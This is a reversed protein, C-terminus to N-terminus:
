YWDWKIYSYPLFEDSNVEAVIEGPLMTNDTKLYLAGLVKVIEIEGWPDHVTSNLSIEAEGMEM